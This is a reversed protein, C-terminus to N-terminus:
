GSFSVIVTRGSFYLEKSFAVEPHIFPQLTIILNYVLETKEELCEQKEAWDAKGVDVVDPPRYV